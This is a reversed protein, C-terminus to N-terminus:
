SSANSILKDKVSDTILNKSKGQASIGVKKTNNDVVILAGNSGALKKCNSEAYKQAGNDASDLVCLKLNQKTASKVENILNQLETCNDDSILNDDYTIDDYSVNTDKAPISSSNDNATSADAKETAATSEAKVANKNNVSSIVFVSFIGLAVFVITISAAIFLKISDAGRKGPQNSQPINSFATETRQTKGEINGAYNPAPILPNGCYACCKHTDPNERNCNKCIM